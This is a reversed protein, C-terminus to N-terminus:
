HPIIRALLRQLWNVPMKPAISTKKREQERFNLELQLRRWAAEQAAKLNPPLRNDTKEQNGQFANENM